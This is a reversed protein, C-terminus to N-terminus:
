DGHRGGQHSTDGHHHGGFGCQKSGRGSKRPYIGSAQTAASNAEVGTFHPLISQSPIASLPAKAAERRLRENVTALSSTPSPSSSSVHPDPLLKNDTAQDPMLKARPVKSLSDNAQYTWLAGYSVAAALIVSGAIVATRKRPSQKKEESSEPRPANNLETM